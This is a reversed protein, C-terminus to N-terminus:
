GKGASLGVANSNKNLDTSQEAALSLEGITELIKDFQNQTLTVYDDKKTDRKAKGNNQNGDQGAKNKEANKINRKIINNQPKYNQREQEAEVKQQERLQKSRLPKKQDKSKYSFKKNKKQSEEAFNLHTKVM